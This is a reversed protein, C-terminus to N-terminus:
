TMVTVGEYPSYARLFNGTEEVIHLYLLFVKTKQSGPLLKEGSLAVM